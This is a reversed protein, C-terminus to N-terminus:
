VPQCISQAGTVSSSRAVIASAPSSPTQTTAPPLWRSDPYELDDGPAV